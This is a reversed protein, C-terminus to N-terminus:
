LLFAPCGAGLGIRQLSRRRWFFIRMVAPAGRGQGCARAAHTWVPGIAERLLFAADRRNEPHVFREETFSAAVRGIFGLKRRHLAVAWWDKFVTDHQLFCVDINPPRSISQRILFLRRLFVSAAVTIEGGRCVAHVESMAVMSLVHALLHPRRRSRPKHCAAVRRNRLTKCPLLATKVHGRKLLPPGDTDLAQRRRWCSACRRTKRVISKETSRPLVPRAPKDGRLDHLRPLGPVCRIEAGGVMRGPHVDRTWACTRQVSNRMVRTTDRM